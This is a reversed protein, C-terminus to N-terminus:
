YAAISIRGRMRNCDAPLVCRHIVIGLLRVGAAELALPRLLQLDIDDGGSDTAALM